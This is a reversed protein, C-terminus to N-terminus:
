ATAHEGLLNLNPIRLTTSAMPEGENYTNGFLELGTEVLKAPMDRWMHTRGEAERAPLELHLLHIWGNNAGAVALEATQARLIMRPNAITVSLMGFHALFQVSGSFAIQIQTDTTTMGAIPFHFEDSETVGAGDSVVIQGDRSSQIYNVFSDKVGWALGTNAPQLDTNSSGSSM